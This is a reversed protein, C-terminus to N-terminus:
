GRGDVAERDEAGSRGETVAAASRAPASKRALGFPQGAKMVFLWMRQVGLEVSPM